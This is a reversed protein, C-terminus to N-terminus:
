FWLSVQLGSGLDPTATQNEHLVNVSIPGSSLIPVIAQYRMSDVYYTIGIGDAKTVRYKIEASGPATFQQAELEVWEDKEDVTFVSSGIVLQTDTRIIEVLVTAPTAPQDDIIKLTVFPRYVGIELVGWAAEVYDSEASMEVSQGNSATLDNVIPVTAARLGSEAELFGTDRVPWTLAHFQQGPDADSIPLDIVVPTAQDDAIQVRILESPALVPAQSFFVTLSTPKLDDPFLTRNHEGSVIEPIASSWLRSGRLSADSSGSGVLGQVVDSLAEGGGMTASSARPEGQEMVDGTDVWSNRLDSSVETTGEVVEHVLNFGDYVGPEVSRYIRWAFVGEPISPISIEVANSTNTTNRTPAAVTADEPIFGEDYVLQEDTELLFYYRTQGPRARFVRFAAAEVPLEPLDILIRNEAGSSIRVDTPASPLTEGGDDTVMTVIYSYLGPGLSGSTIEIDLVPALPPDIGVSTTIPVEDSAETELGWRDMYSIRYYFTTDSPLTGGTPSAVLSPVLGPGALREAGDHQHNALAFLIGDLTTRDLDSFAFGNKSFNEGQGVRTLGFHSTERTAEM